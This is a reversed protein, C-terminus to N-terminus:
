GCPRPASFARHRGFPLQYTVDATVYNTIDFDSNARCERPRIDDCILGIGGIGTDSQSNAFFSVNDISHSFTYNM